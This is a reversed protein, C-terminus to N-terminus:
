FDRAGFAEHSRTAREIKSPSGCAGFATGSCLRWKDRDPGIEVIMPLSREIQEVSQSDMGQTLKLAGHYAQLIADLPVIAQLRLVERMRRENADAFDFSFSSGQLKFETKTGEGVFARGLREDADTAAVGDIANLIREVSDFSVVALDRSQNIGAFGICVSAFLEAAKGDSIARSEHLLSVLKLLSQFEGMAFNLEAGGFAELRKAAQFFSITQQGTLETLEAFYPYANRYKAFNQALALAMTEDMPQRRHANIRVVALFNEIRRFKRYREDVYERELMDLLIKDEADPTLVSGARQVLKGVDSLNKRGGTAVMWVRDSGPFRVNGEADLPIERALRAFPDEKRSFLGSRLVKEDSFPFVKYFRALRSPTRTFFRQNTLPLVALSHYYAFLKGGDKKALNRIFGDIQSPDVGVLARWAETAETGGPLILRGEEITVSAGYFSLQKIQNLLDETPIVNM